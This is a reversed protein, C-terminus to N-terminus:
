SERRGSEGGFLLAGLAGGLASFSLFFVGSVAMGILSIVILGHDTAVFGRFQELWQPMKPDAVSGAAERIKELVAERLKTRGSASLLVIAMLLAQTGFGWGGALMGLKAGMFATVVGVGARRRYLTVALGGSAFMCLVALPIIPIFTGVTALLGAVLASGIAPRWILRNGVPPGFQVAAPALPAGNESLVPAAEPQLEEPTEPV